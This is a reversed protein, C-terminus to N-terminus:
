YSQSVSFVPPLYLVEYQHGDFFERIETCKHFSVNDMIFVTKNIEKKQLKDILDGMADTFRYKNYAKTKTSYDLIGSKNM